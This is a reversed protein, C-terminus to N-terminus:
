SKARVGKAGSVSEDVGVSGSCLVRQGDVDGGPVWGDLGRVCDDSIRYSVHHREAGLLITSGAALRRGDTELRASFAHGDGVGAACYARDRSRNKGVAAAM